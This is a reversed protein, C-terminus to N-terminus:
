TTHPAMVRQVIDGLLVEDEELAPFHELCISWKDTLTPGWLPWLLCLEDTSQRWVHFRALQLLTM